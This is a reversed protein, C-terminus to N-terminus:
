KWHIHLFGRVERFGRDMEDNVAKRYAGPGCGLVDSVFRAFWYFLANSKDCDLVQKVAGGIISYGNARKKMLDIDGAIDGALSALVRERTELKKMLDIDNAIDGAISSLLVRERRELNKMLDIDGGINGALSTLVCKKREFKDTSDINNAIDGTIKTVSRYASVHKCTLGTNDNEIVVIDRNNIVELLDQEWAFELAGALTSLATACPVKAMGDVLANLCQDNETFRASACPFADMGTAGSLSLIGAAMFFCKVLNKKM